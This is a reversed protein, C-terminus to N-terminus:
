GGRVNAKLDRLGIDTRYHMRDFHIRRVNDYVKERAAAITDGRAVVTLVRGGATLTRGGERVTGAHFVQVDTEVDGLGE